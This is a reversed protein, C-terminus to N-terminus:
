IEYRSPTRSLLDLRKEGIKDTADLSKGPDEIINLIEKYNISSFQV